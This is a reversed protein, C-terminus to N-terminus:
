KTCYGVNDIDKDIAGINSTRTTVLTSTAFEAWWKWAVWTGTRLWYVISQSEMSFIYIFYFNITLHYAPYLMCGYIIYINLFNCTHINSLAQLPRANDKTVRLGWTMTDICLGRKERERALTTYRGARILIMSRDIWPWVITRTTQDIYRKWKGHGM